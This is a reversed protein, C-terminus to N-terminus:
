VDKTIRTPNNDLKFDMLWRNDVYSKSLLQCRLNVFGLDDDSLTIIDGIELFGDRLPVSYQITKTPMAWLNILNNAIKNATKWDYCYDLTIVRRRTGFISKSIECLPNLGFTLM